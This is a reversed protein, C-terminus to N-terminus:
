KLENLFKKITAMDEIANDQMTLHAANTTITMKSGPVLSQYYQTSPISIEDHDGVIFQVPIKVQSLKTNGNYNKLTGTATFESPGWMYLYVNRGTNIFTSDMDASWPLKMAVYKQYFTLIALQYDMSEFNGSDTSEKITQQTSDPLTKVLSDTDIRCRAIDIAPSSLILSKVKEPYKTYYELSLITGWSQGYLHFENIGLHEILKKIQEVYSDITM